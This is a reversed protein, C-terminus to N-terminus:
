APRGQHRWLSTVGVGIDALLGRLLPLSIGLVNGPDGDVGDVFWGGLGELTFGGAVALPEGSAVYAAVEADSPDGFRVISAGVGSAVKDTATDVVHHGTFLTGTRGRLRHWRDVAIAASAPKGFADGDVDLLSDCGIVVAGAAEPRAAVADAKAAALVAVLSATDSATVRSEDIGSIM